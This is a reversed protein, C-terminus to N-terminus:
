FEDPVQIRSIHTVRSVNSHTSSTDNIVSDLTDEDYEDAAASSDTRYFFSTGFSSSQGQQRNVLMDPTVFSSARSSFSPESEQPVPSCFFSQLTKFAKPQM